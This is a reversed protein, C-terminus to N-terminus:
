TNIYNTRLLYCSQKVSEVLVSAFSYKQNLNKVKKQIDKIKPRGDGPNLLSQRWRQGRFRRPRWRKAQLKSRPIQIQLRCKIVRSEISGFMRVASFSLFSSISRWTVRGLFGLFSTRTSSQRTCTGAPFAAPCLSSNESSSSRTTFAFDLFTRFKNVIESQRMEVQM